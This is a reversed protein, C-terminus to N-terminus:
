LLLISKAVDLHLPFQSSQSSFFPNPPTNPHCASPGSNHGSNPNLFYAITDAYDENPGNEWGPLCSTNTNRSYDSVGGELSHANRQENLKSESRPKCAHIFHGLEHTVLFKFFAENSYEVMQLNGCSKLSSIGSTGGTSNIVSGSILSPFKSNSNQWVLEWLWQQHQLSFGNITINFQSILGTRIDSPFPPVDGPQVGSLPPNGVKTRWTSSSQASIESALLFVTLVSIFLITLLFIIRGM